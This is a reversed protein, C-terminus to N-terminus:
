ILTHLNQQTMQLNKGVFIRPLKRNMTHMPTKVGVGEEFVDGEKKDLGKLNAFQRLGGKKPM